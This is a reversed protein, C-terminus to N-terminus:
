DIKGIPSYFTEDNIGDGAGDGSNNTPNSLPASDYQDCELGRNIYM